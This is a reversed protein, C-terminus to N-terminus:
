RDGVALAVHIGILVGVVNGITRDWLLQFDGTPAALELMMLILPTFHGMALGYNRAMFLVIPYKLAIILLAQIPAPLHLAMIVFM